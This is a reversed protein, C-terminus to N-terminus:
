ATEGKTNQKSWIDIVKFGQALYEKFELHGMPVIVTVYCGDERGSMTAFKTFKNFDNHPKQVQVKAVKKHQGPIHLPIGNKTMQM